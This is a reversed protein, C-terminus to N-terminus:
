CGARPSTLSTASLTSSCTVAGGMLWNGNSDLVSATGLGGAGSAQLVLSVASGLANEMRAGVRARVSAGPGSSDASYFDLNAWNTNTLWSSSSDTSGLQLTAPTISASGTAFRLTQSASFANDLNQGAVTIAADPFTATRATTGTKTLTLAGVIGTATVGPQRDKFLEDM